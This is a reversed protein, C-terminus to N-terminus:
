DRLKKPCDEDSWRKSGASGLLRSDNDNVVMVPVESRHSPGAQLYRTQSVLLSSYDLAQAIFEILLAIVDAIASANIAAYCITMARSSALRTSCPFRNCRRKRLWKFMGMMGMACTACRGVTRLYPQVFQCTFVALGVLVTLTLNSRPARSDFWNAETERSVAERASTGGRCKRRVSRVVRSVPREGNGGLGLVTARRDDGSGIDKGFRGYGETSKSRRGPKCDEISNVSTHFSFGLMIRKFIFSVLKEVLVKFGRHLRDKMIAIFEKYSLQGDGDEDFLAFVTDIIHDSLVSGTCFKVARQFEDKSIPQDALTYIRMAISFDDLNNLFQYFRRFEEFTIGIQLDANILIRDLYKDYEDTDLHTYRLLIKAFDLESITERGKSFEHFELELVEHQLNEMFCKFDEYKLQNTGDKGFFHIMLTTDVAHRRQLGEIDKMIIAVQEDDIYQEQIEEPTTQKETLKEKSEAGHRGRWAHSFVKEMYSHPFLQNKENEERANRLKPKHIIKENPLMIHKLARKTEDDLDRHKLNGGLLRRIRVPGEQNQKRRSWPYPGTSIEVSLRTLGHDLRLLDGCVADPILYSRVVNSVGWLTGPMEGVMGKRTPAFYILERCSWAEYTMRVARRRCENRGSDIEDHMPTEPPGRAPSADPSIRPDTSRLRGPHWDTCVVPPHARQYLYRWYSAGSPRMDPDRHTAVEVHHSRTISITKWLGIKPFRYWAKDRLNRFMHPNGHSLSPITERTVELEKDSLVRRKLRPRPEPEVVSDLFDQPTMYLQGDYEVSAFEIFRRERMTLKVAKQTEDEKGYQVRNVERRNLERSTEMVEM